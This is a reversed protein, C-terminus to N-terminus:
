GGDQNKRKREVEAVLTPIQEPHKILYIFKDLGDNWGKNYSAESQKEVDQLPIQPMVTGLSRSLEPYKAIKERKNIAATQFDRHSIKQIYGATELMDLVVLLDITEARLREINTEAKGAQIEDPGFQLLQSIRHQVEACEEMLKLFLHERETM